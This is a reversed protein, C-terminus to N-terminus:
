LNQSNPPRRAETLFRDPGRATSTRAKDLRINPQCTKVPGARLVRSLQNATLRVTQVTTTPRKVLTAVFPMTHACCSRAAHAAATPQDRAVRAQQM